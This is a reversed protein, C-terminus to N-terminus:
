SLSNLITELEEDDVPEFMDQNYEFLENKVSMLDGNYKKKLYVCVSYLYKNRGGDKRIWSGLRTTQLCKPADGYPLEKIANAVDQLLVRSRKIVKIADDFLVEKFKTDIIYASPLLANFYPLTIPSPNQGAVLKSQKPFLEVKKPFNASLGLADDVDKLCDIVSKAQVPAKLFLYLHLGGSKTRFPVLPLNNDYVLRVIRMLTEGYIDIDIVGFQAKNEDNIPAIGIFQKGKLHAEYLSPVVTAGEAFHISTNSVKEGAKNEERVIPYTGYNYTLPHGTFVKIFDDLNEQISM